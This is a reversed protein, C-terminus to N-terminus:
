MELERESASTEESKKEKLFNRPEERNDVGRGGSKKLFTLTVAILQVPNLYLKIFKLFYTYEWTVMTSVFIYITGIRRPLEGGGAGDRWYAIVKRIMDIVM